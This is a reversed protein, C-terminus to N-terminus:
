RCFFIRSATEPDLTLLEVCVQIEPVTFAVQGNIKRYATTMSWNQANAFAKGSIGRLMMQSKLLNRNVNLASAKM